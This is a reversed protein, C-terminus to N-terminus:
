GEDFRGVRYAKEAARFGLLFSLARLAEEDDGRRLRFDFTRCLAQLTAVEAEFWSPEVAAPLTWRQCTAVLAEAHVDLFELASTAGAEGARAPFIDRLDDVYEDFHECLEPDRQMETFLETSIRGDVFRDGASKAPWLELFFHADEGELDFDPTIWSRLRSRRMLGVAREDDVYRFTSKSLDDDLLMPDLVLVWEGDESFAAVVVWHFHNADDGHLTVLCTHGKATAEELDGLFADPAERRRGRLKSELGLKTASKRVDHEDNGEAMMPLAAKSFVKRLEPEKFEQNNRLGYGHLSLAYRLAAVACTYGTEQLEFSM